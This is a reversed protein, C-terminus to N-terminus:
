SPLWNSKWRKLLEFPQSGMMKAYVISISNAKPSTPLITMKLIFCESPTNLQALLYLYKSYPMYPRGVLSFSSGIASADSAIFFEIPQPQGDESLFARSQSRVLAANSPPVLLGTPVPDAVPPPVTSGLAAPAVGEGTPLEVDVFDVKLKKETKVGILVPSGRRCAVLEDPYHVSKFVFAFAGELHGVVLKVLSTFSIKRGGQEDWLYKALIVAVETDTDSTFKYGKTELVLRLDKYNTIIGNHVM